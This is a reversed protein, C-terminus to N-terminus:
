RPSGPTGAESKAEASVVLVRPDFPSSLWRQVLSTDEFVMRYTVRGQKGSPAAYFYPYLVRVTGRREAARIFNEDQFRLDGVLHEDPQLWRGRRREREIEVHRRLTALIEPRTNTGYLLQVRDGPRTWGHVERAFLWGQYYPHYPEHHLSGGRRRLEPMLPVTHALFLGAFAGIVAARLGWRWRGVALSGSTWLLDAVGIALFPNLPWPWYIHVVATAQFLATHLVGAFLFSLPILDRERPLLGRVLVWLAGTGLVAVGFMPYLSRGWLDGGVQEVPQTRLSWSELMADFSGVAHYALLFFGVFSALVAACFLGGHRWEAFARRRWASGLWHVAIAFALYYGPWDWNCCLLIAVLRLWHRGRLHADLAILGWLIFGTSHNTMNAFGHNIPLLVYICLALAARADGYHRRVIWWLAVAALVGHLAPVLRVVWRADGLLGVAATTSLHLLLPANTYLDSAAPPTPATHYQAPFLTGWELTNWAAIQYAAPNFGHHGWQWFGDIGLLAFFIQVLVFVAAVLGAIQAGRKM